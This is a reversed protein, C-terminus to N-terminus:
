HCPHNPLFALQLGKLVYLDLGPSTIMGNESTSQPSADDPSIQYFRRLILGGKDVSFGPDKKQVNEIARKYGDPNEIDHLYDVHLHLQRMRGLARGTLATGLFLFIQKPASLRPYRIAMGLVTGVALGIM